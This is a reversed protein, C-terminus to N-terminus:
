YSTVTEVAVVVTATIVTEVAVVVAVSHVLVTKV